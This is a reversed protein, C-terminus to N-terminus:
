QTLWYHCSGMKKECFHDGSVVEVSDRLQRLEEALMLPVINNGGKKVIVIFSRVASLSSVAVQYEELVHCATHQFVESDPDCIDATLFSSVSQTQKINSVSPCCSPGYTLSVQRSMSHIFM